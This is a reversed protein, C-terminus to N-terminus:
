ETDCAHHCGCNRTNCRAECLVDWARGDTQEAYENMKDCKHQCDCQLIIAGEGKLERLKALSAADHACSKEVNGRMWPRSPDCPTEGTSCPDIIPNPPPAIPIPLIGRPPPVQQGVALILGFVVLWSFSIRWM